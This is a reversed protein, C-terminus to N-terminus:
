ADMVTTADSVLVGPVALMLDGEKTVLTTKRLNGSTLISLSLRSWIRNQVQVM